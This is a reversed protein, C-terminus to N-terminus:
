CDTPSQGDCSSPTHTTLRSAELRRRTTTGIAALQGGGGGDDDHVEIDGSRRSSAAADDGAAIMMEWQFVGQVVIHVIDKTNTAKSARTATRPSSWYEFGKTGVFSISDPAVATDAAKTSANARM